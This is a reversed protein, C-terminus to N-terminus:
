VYYPGGHPPRPHPSPLPHPNHIPVPIKGIPFHKPPHIPHDPPIVIGNILPPRASDGTATSTQGGFVQRADLARDIASAILSQEQLDLDILESVTQSLESISIQAM